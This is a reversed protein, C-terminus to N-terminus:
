CLHQESHYSTRVLPSSEVKKFGKETAITKYDRFKEPTIYKKVEINNNSPRLYQGITFIDCNIERLSDMTQLIQKETEGLGLMIGSKTIMGKEKLYSLVSLSTKYTAKTRIQPTLFEVTELNHSVINPKQEIILDLWKEEGNFDPILTEITTNPNLEKVKNITNAWHQAGYDPLDDRDVSTIVCHKLEMKKVSEAVRLAENPDVPLPNATTVNCFKCSRTCINGLIMFTATGAGWCEGRNPCLGSECITHLKEKKVIDKLQIYRKGTPFYTKLWKPKRENM